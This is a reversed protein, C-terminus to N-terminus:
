SDVTAPYLVAISVARVLTSVARLESMVALSFKEFPMLVVPVIVAPSALIAWICDAIMESSAASEFDLIVAGKAPVM